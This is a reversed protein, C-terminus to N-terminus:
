QQELVKKVIDLVLLERRTDVNHRELMKKIIGNVGTATMGICKAIQHGSEGAALHRIIITETLDFSETTRASRRGPKEWKNEWGQPKAAPAHLADREVKTLKRAM